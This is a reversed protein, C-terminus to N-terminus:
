RYVQNGPLPIRVGDRYATMTDDIHCFRWGFAAKAGFKYVIIGKMVIGKESILFMGVGRFRVM